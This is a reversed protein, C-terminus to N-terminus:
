LNGRGGEGLYRDVTSRFFLSVLGRVELKLTTPWELGVNITTQGCQLRGLVGLAM